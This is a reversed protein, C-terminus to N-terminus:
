QPAPRGARARVLGLSRGLAALQTVDLKGGPLVVLKHQVLLERIVAADVASAPRSTDFGWVRAGFAPSLPVSRLGALPGTRPPDVQVVGAAAADAAAASAVRPLFATAERASPQNLHAAAVRLRRRARNAATPTM